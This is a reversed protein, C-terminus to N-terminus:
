YDRRVACRVTYANWTSLPRLAARTISTPARVSTANVAGRSAALTLSASSSVVRRRLRGRGGPGKYAHLLTAMDMLAPPM